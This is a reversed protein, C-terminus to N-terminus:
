HATAVAVQDGRALQEVVTGPTGPRFASLQLSHADIGREVRKATDEDPPNRLAIVVSFTNGDLSGVDLSVIESLESAAMAVEVDHLM